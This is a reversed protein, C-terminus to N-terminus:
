LLFLIMCNAIFVTDAGNEECTIRYKHQIKFTETSSLSGILLHQNIVVPVPSKALILSLM